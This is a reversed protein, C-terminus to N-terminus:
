AAAGAGVRFVAEGGGAEELPERGRRRSGPFCAAASAMRAEGRWRGALPESPSCLATRRPHAWGVPQLKREGVLAGRM